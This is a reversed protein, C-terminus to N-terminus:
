LKGKFKDLASLKELLENFAKMEKTVTTTVRDWEAKAKAKLAGEDQPPNVISSLLFYFRNEPM